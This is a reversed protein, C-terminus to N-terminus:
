DGRLGDFYEKAHEGHKKPMRRGTLPDTAGRASAKNVQDQIQQRVDGKVNPGDVMDVVEASGAGIRQKVRSDYMRTDTKREPRAGAGRGRGGPGDGLREDLEGQCEECGAGGCKKCGMRERAQALQQMADDLMEMEDLKQKLDKMQAQMQDLAKAAQQAQGQKLCKSCQGLKDAMQKLQQMQPGQEMLKQLQEELKNAEAVQGAQRLQKARQKLDEQAARHADALKGLKDKMQELQKALDAKQKEDLKSNALQDQLKKLEEAAKKCDGRSVAQAFKDAPGRDVNKL